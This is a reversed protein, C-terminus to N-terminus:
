RIQQWLAVIEMIEEDDEALRREREALRATLAQEAEDIDRERQTLRRFSPIHRADPVSTDDGFPWGKEPASAVLVRHTLTADFGDFIFIGTGGALVPSSPAYTLTADEGTFLFVGTAGNCAYQRTLTAAGGALAFAGAAGNLLYGHALTAPKGSVLFAGFSGPLLHAWLMTAPKGSVSFSGSAGNVAYGHTITATKGSVSFSGASGNCVHGHVMTASKGSVAFSGPAGNLVPNSPAHFAIIGTVYGGAAPSIAWVHKQNGTSSVSQNPFSNPEWNAGDTEQCNTANALAYTGDTGTQNLTFAVTGAGTTVTAAFIISNATATTIQASPITSVTVIDTTTGSEGTTFPASPDAGSVEQVVGQVYASGSGGGVSISTIGAPCNAKYWISLNVWISVSSDVALAKVWGISGSINDTVTHQASSEDADVFVVLLNGATPSYTLAAPSSSGSLVKGTGVVSLAM